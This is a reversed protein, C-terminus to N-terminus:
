PVRLYALTTGRIRRLGTWVGGQARLEDLARTVGVWGAYDHWLVVGGTARLLEVARASDNLVYEYAHSGDVFVFDTAGRYPAFDFAASDGYLQRIDLEAGATHILAGSVPKLVYARDAAEISFKVNDLEDAPLDLTYTVAGRASNAAINITSRGNFTGIEFSALPALDAVVSAIAVLEYLSVNGDHGDPERLQFATSPPVLEALEVQPLQPIPSGPARYGFHNAVQTLMRRHRPVFPALGLLTAASAASYLYRYAFEIRRKM